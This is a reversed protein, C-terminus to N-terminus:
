KVVAVDLKLEVTAPPLCLRNSCTQYEVTVRLTRPGPPTGPAIRVPVTLTATKEFFHTEVSFNPDLQTAPRSEIIAGALSFTQGPPMGVFLASPGNPAQTMSYVHWDADITATITADIVGGAVVRANPALAISWTVPELKKPASAAVSQEPTAARGAGVAGAPASDTKGPANFVVDTQAAQLVNPVIATPAAGQQVFAVVVLQSPDIATMAHNEALFEFPAQGNRARNESRKQLEAALTNTVDARIASLRFTYPTTGDGTLPLGLGKDGAIARVVMSHVRINNRGVYRLEREVLLIHLRLDNRAPPLGAVTARVTVQDGDGVAHVSIDAGAPADLGTDIASVLARYTGVAWSAGFNFGDLETAVGDVRVDPVWNASQYAFRRDAGGAVVMPDPGPINQHYAVAAVADPRYRELAADFALDARRCPPCDSGTFLELLVVRHSRSPSPSYPIPKVTDHALAKYRQALADELGAESGHAKQYLARMATDQSPRVRSVAAASIYRDLAEAADGRQEALEALGTSLLALLTESGISGMDLLSLGEEFAKRAGMRDGHVLCARGRMELAEPRSQEPGDEFRTHLGLAQLQTMGALQGLGADTVQTAGLRLERLHTLASLPKLWADTVATLSLDLSELDALTAIERLASQSLNTGSLNLDKLQPLRVLTSVDAGTVRTRSLDLTQLRRMGALAPLDADTVHLGSLDLQRLETLGALKKLPESDFIRDRVGLFDLTQLQRLKAIETLHMDTLDLNHLHLERLRPLKVLHRLGEGTVKSDGLTLTELQTLGALWELGSDTVAVDLQLWRLEKLAALQNLGTESVKVKAYELYLTQLQSLGALHVRAADDPIDCEVLALTRLLKLDGLAQLHSGTLVVSRMHLGFPVSPAPLASFGRVGPPENVSFAPMAGAPPPEGPALSIEAADPGLWVFVAGAREWAAVVRPDIGGYSPLRPQAGGIASLSVAAVLGLALTSRSSRRARVSEVRM